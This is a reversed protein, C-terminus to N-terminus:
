EVREEWMTKFWWANVAEARLKQFSILDLYCEQCKITYRNARKARKSNACRECQPDYEKYVRVADMPIRILRAKNVIERKTTGLEPCPTTWELFVRLGLCKCIHSRVKVPLTQMEHMVVRICSNLSVSFDYPSRRLGLLSEQIHLSLSGLHWNSDHDLIEHFLLHTTQWKTLARWRLFSHRWKFGKVAMHAVWARFQDEPMNSLQYQFTFVDRGSLLTEDNVTMYLSVLEYSNRKGLPALFNLELDSHSTEHIEFHKQLALVDKRLMWLVLKQQTTQSPASFVTDGVLSGLDVGDKVLYGAVFTRTLRHRLDRPTRFRRMVSLFAVVTDRLQPPLSLFCESICQFEFFPKTLLKYYDERCDVMSSLEIGFFCIAGYMRKFDLHSLRFSKVKWPVYVARGLRRLFTDWGQVDSLRAYFSLMNNLVRLRAQKTTCFRLAWQIADDYRGSRAYEFIQLGAARSDGYVSSHVQKM